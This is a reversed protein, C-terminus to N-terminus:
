KDAGGGSAGEDKNENEDNEERWQDYRSGKRAAGSSGTEESSPTPLTPATGGEGKEQRWESYRTSQRDPGSSGTEQSTATPLASSPDVATGQDQEQDQEQNQDENRGERLETYRTSPRVTSSSGPAASTPTPLTTAPDDSTDKDKKTENEAM